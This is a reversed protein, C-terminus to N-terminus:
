TPFDVEISLGRREMIQRLTCNLLICVCYCANTHYLNKHTSQLIFHRVVFLVFADRQPRRM